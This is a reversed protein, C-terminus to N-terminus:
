AINAQVLAMSNDYDRRADRHDFFSRASVFAQQGYPGIIYWRWMYDQGMHFMPNVTDM